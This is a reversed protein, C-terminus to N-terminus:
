RLPGPRPPPEPAPAYCRRQYGTCRWAIPSLTVMARRQLLGTCRAVALPDKVLGALLDPLLDPHDTILSLPVPEPGLWAVVALMQLARPDHQALQDFAVAWAAAASRRYPGDPKHDLLQHTQEGLLRLYTDTDLTGIGLLSGAQDVALPLDGVADAVRDADGESLQPALRRLLAISEPRTFETVGVRAAIGRWHPNRSTILVQGPGDLLYPALAAPDEANDFVLLWRGRRLLATRLRAVAVETPDTPNALDLAQALAALRDPVLALDDAPIWWAIDFQHHHRHAYEIATTTKGVGGMGTVARAVVPDGSGLAVALDDLLGDRGTFEVARAPITWLRRVEGAAPSTRHPRPLEHLAHLLGTRLDGPTAISAVTVGSDALRARFADQRAGYEIDRFMVAPGQADEALVFVLTPIGLDAATRHELETYSLEPQDRVPSGYRFGAIVVVVDAAGVADRCVEAPAADRAIFYAVDMVADGARAVAQEAAAVFSGGVPYQRLESTHSLFVRRPPM